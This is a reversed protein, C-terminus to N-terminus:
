FSNVAAVAIALNYIIQTVSTWLTLPAVRAADLPVVITDGPRIDQGGGQRFWLSGTGALVSGNARVVYVRKSDARATLGGSRSIYADRDMGPQYIHSTSYQVEGLVTV